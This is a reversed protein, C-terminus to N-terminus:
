NKGDAGGQADLAAKVLTMDYVLLKGVKREAGISIGFKRAAYIGTGLYAALDRLRIYNQQM